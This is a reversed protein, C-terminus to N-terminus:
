ACANVFIALVSKAFGIEKYTCMGNQSIKHRYQAHLVFITDVCFGISSYKSYKFFSNSIKFFTKGPLGFTFWKCKPPPVGVLKDASFKLSNNVHNFSTNSKSKSPSNLISISGLTIVSSLISANTSHPMFRTLKPTCSKSAWTCFTILLSCGNVITLSTTDLNLSFPM